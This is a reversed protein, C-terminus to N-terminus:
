APLVRPLNGSVADVLPLILTDLLYIFGSVNHKHTHTNQNTDSASVGEQSSFTSVLSPPPPPETEQKYTFSQGRLGRLLRCSISPAASPNLIVLPRVSKFNRHHKKATALRKNTIDSRYDRRATQLCPAVRSRARVTGDTRLTRAQNLDKKVECGLSSILSRPALRSLFGSCRSKVTYCSLFSM